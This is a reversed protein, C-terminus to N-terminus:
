GKDAHLSSSVMIYVGLVLQARSHNLDNQPVAWDEPEYQTQEMNQLIYLPSPIQLSLLPCLAHSWLWRDPRTFNACQYKCSNFIRMSFCDCETISSSRYIRTGYMNEMVKPTPCTLCIWSCSKGPHWPYGSMKATKWGNWETKREITFKSFPGLPPSPPPSASVPNSHM